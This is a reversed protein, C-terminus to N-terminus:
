APATLYSVVLPAVWVLVLGVISYTFMSKANERAQINNGAFMYMAGAATLAIAGLVSLVGKMLGYIRDLPAKITDVTATTDAFAAPFLLLLLSAMALIKRM